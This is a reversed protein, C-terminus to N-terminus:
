KPRKFYYHNTFTRSDVFQKEEIEIAILEWGQAGLDRLNITMSNHGNVVLYEWNTRSPTQARGSWGAWCLAMLVFVVLLWQAKKM